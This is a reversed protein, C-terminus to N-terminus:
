PAIAVACHGNDCVASANSPYGSPGCCPPLMSGCLVQTFNVSANFAVLESADGAGCGECCGTGWRLRCDADITCASLEDERVDVAECSGARCVGAFNSDQTTVCAPCAVNGCTSTQYHIYDEASIGMFGSVDMPGCYGCCNTPLVRCQGSGGCPQGSSGAEGVAGAGATAGAGSAGGVGGGGTGSGGGTASAGAEGGSAGASGGTTGGGKGSGGGSAGNGSSAGGTGGTVSGGSAGGAKGASGASGSTGGSAGSGSTGGSSTGSAGATGGSARTGLLTSDSGCSLCLLWATSVALPLSLLRM